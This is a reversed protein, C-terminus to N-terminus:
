RKLIGNLKKAEEDQEKGPKDGMLTDKTLALWEKVEPQELSKALGQFMNFVILVRKELTYVSVPNSGKIKPDHPSHEVV